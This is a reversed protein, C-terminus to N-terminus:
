DFVVPHLPLIKIYKVYSLFCYMHSMESLVKLEPGKIKNEENFGDINVIQIVRLRDQLYTFHTLYM